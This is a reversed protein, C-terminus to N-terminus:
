VMMSFSNLERVEELTELVKPSWHSDDQMVTSRDGHTQNPHFDLFGDHINNRTEQASICGEAMEIFCEAVKVSLDELKLIESHVFKMKDKFEDPQPIDDVFLTNDRVIVKVGLNVYSSQNLPYTIGDYIVSTDEDLNQTVLEVSQKVLDGIIKTGANYVVESAQAMALVLSSNDNKHKNSFM